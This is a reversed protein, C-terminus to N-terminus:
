DLFYGALDNVSEGAQAAEAIRLLMTAKYIALDANEMLSQARRRKQIALEKSENASVKAQEVKLIANKEEVADQEAVFATFSCILCSVSLLHIDVGGM